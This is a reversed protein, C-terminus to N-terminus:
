KIKRLESLSKVVKIRFLETSDDQPAETLEIGALEDRKRTLEVGSLHHDSSGRDYMDYIEFSKVDEKIGDDSDTELFRVAWTSAKGLEVIKETTIYGNENPREYSNSYHKHDDHEITMGGESLLAIKGVYKALLEQGVLLTEQNMRRSYDLLRSTIPESAKKAVGYLVKLQDDAEVIDGSGVAYSQRETATDMYVIVPHNKNPDNIGCVSVFVKSEDIQHAYTHIKIGSFVDTDAHYREFDGYNNLLESNLRM